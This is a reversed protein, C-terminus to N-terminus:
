GQQYALSKLIPLNPHEKMHLASHKATSDFLTLNSFTNNLRNNDKHHVIEHRMLCRGLHMAMVLRHELVYGGKNVMSRFPSDHSLSIATYGDTTIIRGGNWRPNQQKFGFTRSRCRMCKEIKDAIRLLVWREHGCNSCAQWIYKDRGILGRKTGTTFSGIKPM